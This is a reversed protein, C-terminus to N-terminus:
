AQNSNVNYQQLHHHNNNSHPTLCSKTRQLQLTKETHAARLTPDSLVCAKEGPATRTNYQLLFMARHLGVHKVTPLVQTFEDFPSWLRSKYGRRAACPAKRVCAGVVPEQRRRGNRGHQNDSACGYPVARPVLASPPLPCAHCPIAGSSLSVSPQGGGGGGGKISSTRKDVGQRNGRRDAYQKPAFIRQLLLQM